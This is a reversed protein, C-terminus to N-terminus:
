VIEETGAIHMRIGRDRFMELAEPDTYADTIINKILDTECSVFNSEEGIKTHDALIYATGTTQRLMNRNIDVENLFQTMMGSELNVATCGIFARDAKVRALNHMTFEGVMTGKINRLEGGLLIITVHPPTHSSTVINGNNTVITVDKATIYRVAMLATSSTNIFITEGDMVQEAAYRAIMERAVSVRDRLATAKESVVRAGGYYREIVHRDELYQLDRRVTIESVQLHQAIDPVRVDGTKQVIEMLKKRRESVVAKSQKM